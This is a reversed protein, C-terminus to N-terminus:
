NRTFVQFLSALRQAKCGTNRFEATAELWLILQKLNRAAPFMFRHRSREKMLMKMAQRGRLTDAAQKWLGGKRRINGLSKMLVMAAINSGMAYGGYERIYVGMMLVEFLYEKRSLRKSAPLEKVLFAMYEEVMDGAQEEYVQMVENSLLAIERYYKESDQSGNKLSYTIPYNAKM